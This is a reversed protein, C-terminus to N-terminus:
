GKDTRRSKGPGTLPKDESIQNISNEAQTERLREPQLDLYAQGAGSSRETGDDDM